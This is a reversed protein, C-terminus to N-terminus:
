EANMLAENLTIVQNNFRLFLANQILRLKNWFRRLKGTLEAKPNNCKNIEQCQVQFMNLKHRWEDYDIMLEDMVQKRDINYINAIGVIMIIAESKSSEMIADTQYPKASQKDMFYNPKVIQIVQELTM